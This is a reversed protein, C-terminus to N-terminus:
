EDDDSDEDLDDDFPEPAGSLPQRRAARPKGRRRGIPAPRRPRSSSSTRAMTGGLLVCGHVGMADALRQLTSLRIDAEGARIRLLQRVSIGARRATESIDGEPIRQLHTVLEAQLPFPRPTRGQSPRM